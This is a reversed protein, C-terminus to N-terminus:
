WLLYYSLYAASERKSIAKTGDKLTQAGARKRYAKRREPDNHDLYDEMGRAGFYVKEGNTKIYVFKKDPKDSIKIEGKLGRKKALQRVKELKTM